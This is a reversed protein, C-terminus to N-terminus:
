EPPETDEPPIRRNREFEREAERQERLQKIVRSFEALNASRRGATAIDERMADRKRAMAAETPNPMVNLPLLALLMTPLRIPGLYIWRDDLGVPQGGLTTTWDPRYQAMSDVARAAAIADLFQQTLAVVASDSIQEQSQGSLLSALERPTMPLPEVWVLGSGFRPTLVRPATDPTQAGLPVFGGIMLAVVIRWGAREPLRSLEPM